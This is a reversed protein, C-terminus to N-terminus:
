AVWRGGREATEDHRLRIKSYLATVIIGKGIYIASVMAIAAQM